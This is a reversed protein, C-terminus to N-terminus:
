SKLAILAQCRHAFSDSSDMTMVLVNAALLSQEISTECGSQMVAARVRECRNALCTVHHPDEALVLVGSIGASIETQVANALKTSTDLVSGQWRMGQRLTRLESNTSQHSDPSSIVQIRKQRLEDRAAPTIIAQPSVSISTDASLTEIDAVAIVRSFLAANPLQQKSPSRLRRLVEKVVRDVVRETENQSPDAATNTM